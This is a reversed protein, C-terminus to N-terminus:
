IPSDITTAFEIFGKLQFGEPVRDADIFADLQISNDRTAVDLLSVDPVRLDMCTKYTCAELQNVGLEDLRTSEESIVKQFIESIIPDKRLEIMLTSNLLNINVFANKLKPHSKLFEQTDVAATADNVHALFMDGYENNKLYDKRNARDYKLILIDKAKDPNVYAPFLSVQKKFYNEFRDMTAQDEKPAKDFVPYYDKLNPIHNSSVSIAIKRLFDFDVNTKGHVFNYVWNHTREQHAHPEIYFFVRKLRIDKVYEKSIQPVPQTLRVPMKGLGFGGAGINMFTRAIGSLIPGANPVISPIADINRDTLPLFFNQHIYQGDGYAEALRQAKVKVDITSTTDCVLNKGCFIVGHKGCGTFAFSLAMTMLFVQKKM